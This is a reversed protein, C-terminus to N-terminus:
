WAQHPLTTNSCPGQAQLVGVAQTGERTTDLSDPTCHSLALGPQMANDYSSMNVLLITVM